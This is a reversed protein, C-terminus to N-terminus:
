VAGYHKIMLALLVVVVSLILIELAHRIWWQRVTRKTQQWM